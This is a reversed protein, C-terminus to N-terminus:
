LISVFTCSSAHPFGERLQVCMRMAFLLCVDQMRTACGNMHGRTKKCRGNVLCTSLMAVIGMASQYLMVSRLSVGSQMIKQQFNGLLADCALAAFVCLWGMASQACCSLFM